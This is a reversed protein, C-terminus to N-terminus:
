GQHGESDGLPHHLAGNGIEVGGHKRPKHEEMEIRRRKERQEAKGLSQPHM